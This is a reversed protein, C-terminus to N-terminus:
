HLVSSKQPLRAWLFLSQKLASSNQACQWVTNSAMSQKQGVTPELFCSMRWSFFVKLASFVGFCYIFSFLQSTTSMLYLLQHDIYLVSARIFCCHLFVCRKLSGQSFFLWLFFFRTRKNRKKCGTTLTGSHGLSCESLKRGSKLILFTHPGHLPGKICVNASLFQNSDWGCHISM